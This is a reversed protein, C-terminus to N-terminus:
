VKKGTEHAMGQGTPNAHLRNLLDLTSQAKDIWRKEVTWNGTGNVCAPDPFTAYRGQWHCVTWPYDAHCGPTDSYDPHHTDYIAVIGSREEIRFRSCGPAVSRVSATRPQGTPNPKYRAVRVLTRIAHRLGRKQVHSTKADRAYEEFLRACEILDATMCFEDEYAPFDYQKGPPLFRVLENQSRVVAHPKGPTKSAEITEPQSM